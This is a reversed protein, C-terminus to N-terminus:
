FGFPSGIKSKGVVYAGAISIITSVQGPVMIVLFCIFGIITIFKGFEFIKNILYKNNIILILKNM